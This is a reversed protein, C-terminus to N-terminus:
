ERNAILVSDGPTPPTDVLGPRVTATCNSFCKNTPLLHSSICQNTCRRQGMACM